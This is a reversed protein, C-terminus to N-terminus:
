KPEICDVYRKLAETLKEPCMHEWHKFAGRWSRYDFDKGLKERAIREFQLLIMNNVNVQHVHRYESFQAANIPNGLLVDKIYAINDDILRDEVIGSHASIIVKARFNRIFELTKIYAELDHYDLYPLPYEILDGVFLVSDQRDFCLACDITHGPAYIFEVEEEEFVLKDSFTLSPLVLKIEGQHYETLQALDYAGIEQMRKRCTEHGIIIAEPFACNGWIHDWDAHSNFIVIEKNPWQSAIHQKVAEMSRPGLHTDCIFYKKDTSILYVSINDAFTFLLGRKQVERMLM